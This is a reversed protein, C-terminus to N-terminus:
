ADLLTENHNLVVGASAAAAPILSAVTVAVTFVALKLKLM